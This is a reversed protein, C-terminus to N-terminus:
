NPVFNRAVATIHPKIWCLRNDIKIGMCDSQEVVKIFNGAFLIPQLPGTFPHKTIIMAETKGTHVILRNKKCWIYFDGLILNLGKIVDEVGNRIYYITTDDAFM